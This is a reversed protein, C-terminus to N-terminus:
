DVDSPTVILVVRRNERRGTETRNSQVPYGEGLAVLRLNPEAMGAQVLTAKVTEARARSLEANYTASGRSDTHGELLGGRIGAALLARALKEVMAQQGAALTAAGPDFLVQDQMRLEWNGDIPRFGHARLAEVQVATFDAQRPPITQCGSALILAAAALLNRMHLGTENNDPVRPM